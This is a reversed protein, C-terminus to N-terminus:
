PDLLKSEAKRLHELFTTKSVGMEAALERTSAERPWEYYGNERALKFAERQSGTLVDLRRVPKTDHETSRIRRIRIEAGTRETITDIRDEIDSREGEYCVDWYERGGEIRGPTRHVFGQELLHPCIMDGPNYELFFEKSVAEPAIQRVRTDFHTNLENVGGTLPSSRIDDLLTQVDNESRGYATYLGNVNTGTSPADYVAHALIGGQYQETAQIAWCNPHWLDLTLRVGNAPKAGSM